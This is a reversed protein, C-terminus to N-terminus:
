NTWVGTTGEEIATQIRKARQLNRGLAGIHERAWKPLKAIRKKLKQDNM